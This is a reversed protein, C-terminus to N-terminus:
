EKQEIRELAKEIRTFQETQQKQHMNFITVDTKKEIQQTNISQQKNMGGIAIGIVVAAAILAYVLHILKLKAETKEAPM